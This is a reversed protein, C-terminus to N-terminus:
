KEVVRYAIIDHPFESLPSRCWRFDSAESDTFLTGDRYRIDVLQEDNVPCPGGSWEIWGDNEVQRYTDTTPQPNDTISEGREQDERPDPKAWFALVKRGDGKFPALWPGEMREWSISLPVQRIQKGDRFHEPMRMLATIETDPDLTQLRRILQGVSKPAGWFVDIVQQKLAYLATAYVLRERELMTIVTGTDSLKRFNELNNDIAALSKQCHEIHVKRQEDTLVPMEYKTEM